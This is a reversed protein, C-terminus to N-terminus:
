SIMMKIKRKEIEEEYIGEYQKTMMTEKFCEKLKPQLKVDDKISLISKALAEASIEPVIIGSYEEIIERVACIDFAIVPTGSAIAEINVLGFIDDTSPNIFYDAAAFFENMKEEESIFGFYHIDFINEIQKLEDGISSGAVILQYKDPCPLKKLAELLYKIGKRSESLKAAVFAIITKSDSLGYKQRMERKEYKKWEKTNLSNYVVRIDEKKLISNKLQNKLWYSPSVFIIGKGCYSNKASLLKHSENKKLQPYIDLNTCNTCGKKWQECGYTYACHGTVPYFDHITWVVPCLEQIKAVDYIGLYNGHINNLHVIDINYKKIYEVIRYYTLPIRLNAHSHNKTIIRNVFRMALGDYLVSVNNDRVKDKNYGVMVHVNHGRELMVRRLQRTVKEAGGGTYATNIILINM